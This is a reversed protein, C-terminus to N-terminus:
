GTRLLETDHCVIQRAEVNKPSMIVCVIRVHSFENVSEFLNSGSTCCFFTAPHFHPNPHVTALVHQLHSRPCHALKRWSGFESPLARRFRDDRPGALVRPRDGSRSAADRPEPIILIDPIWDIHPQVIEVELNDRCLQLNPALDDVTCNPYNAGIQWMGTAEARGM